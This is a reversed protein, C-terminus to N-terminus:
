RAHRRTASRSVSFAISLGIGVYVLVNAWSPYNSAMNKRHFRFISKHWELVMRTPRKAASAGKRHWVVSEPFYVVRWGARKARFCWDEDECYMYFQEDMLGIQQVVDRRVLMFAGIVADVDTIVTEDLFSLYYRGFRPSRPFLRSLGSLKYFYIAPTKFSRRCPADLKGDPLRIRPGLIGVSPNADLYAVAKALAGREIVTDPNLLLVYRGQAGPLAQNCARGFGVNQANRVVDVRLVAERLHSESVAEAALANLAALSGDSSANDIFLLESSGELDHLEPRLSSWLAPLTSSSEYTVM